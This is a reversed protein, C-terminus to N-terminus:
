TLLKRCNIVVATSNGHSVPTRMLTHESAVTGVDARGLKIVAFSAVSTASLPASPAYTLHSQLASCSRRGWCHAWRDAGTM